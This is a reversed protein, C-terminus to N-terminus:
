DRDRGSRCPQDHRRQIDQRRDNQLRRSTRALSFSSTIDLGTELPERAPNQAKASWMAVVFFTNCRPRAEVLTAAASLQKPTEGLAGGSGRGAAQAGPLLAFCLLALAILLPPTTKFQILSNMTRGKRKAGSYTSNPEKM